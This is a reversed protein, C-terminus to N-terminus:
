ERPKDSGIMIVDDIVSRGGAIAAVVNLTQLLSADEMYLNILMSGNEAVIRPHVRINADKAKAPAAHDNDISAQHLFDVVDRLNACRFDVVPITIAHLKKELPSLTTVDVEDQNAKYTRDKGRNTGLKSRLEPTDPQISTTGEVLSWRPAAGTAEGATNRLYLIYSKSTDYEPDKKPNWLDMDTRITDKQMPSGLIVQNVRAEIAFSVRKGDTAARAVSLIKAAVVRHATRLGRLEAPPCAPITSATLAFILSTIRAYRM